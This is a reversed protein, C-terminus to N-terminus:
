KLFVMKMQDVFDGARLRYIYVGSGVKLGYDNTGDWKVNKFGAKQPENLVTKVKQGLINYITIEVDVSKPLAYKITTVPNFPNPYNQALNFETPLAIPKELIQQELVNLRQNTDMLKINDVTLESVEDGIWNFILTAFIGSGEVAIKDSIDFLIGAVIVRGETKDNYIFLSTGENSSLFDGENVLALEYDNPNYSVAFQYGALEKVQEAAITMTFNDGFDSMTSALKISSSINVGNNVIKVPAGKSAVQGYVETIVAIDLIDITGDSNLDIVADYESPYDYIETIIAIDLIDIENSGDLDAAMSVTNNIPRAKNAPSAASILRGDKTLVALDEKAECAGAEVNIAAVVNEGLDAAVKTLNSPTSVVPIIDGKVAAVWYYASGVDGNTSVVARITDDKSSPIPTAPIYAWNLASALSSASNRYVQYYDIPLNDDTDGSMGPHNASAPFELQVYGGADGPFDAADLATPATITAAGVTLDGTFGRIDVDAGKKTRASAALFSIDGPKDVSVTIDTSGTVLIPNEIGSVGSASATVNVVFTTDTVVNKFIDKPEIKLKFQTQEALVGVTSIEITDSSTPIWKLLKPTVGAWTRGLTDYVTSGSTDQVTLAIKANNLTKTSTVMINIEDGVMITDHIPSYSWATGNFSDVLTIVNPSWNIVPLKDTVNPAAKNTDVGLVEGAAPILEFKISKYTYDYIPNGNTDSPRLRITHYAGAAQPTDTKGATDSEAVIATLVAMAFHHLEEPLSIVIRISDNPDSSADSGLFRVILTDEGFIAPLAKYSVKVYRDNKMLDPTSGVGGFSTDDQFAGLSDFHLTIERMSTFQLTDQLDFSHIGVPYKPINDDAVKDPEIINGFKDKFQVFIERTAGSYFGSEIVDVTTSIDTVPPNETSITAIIEAYGRDPQKFISKTGLVKAGYSLSITATGKASDAIFNVLVSTTDGLNSGKDIRIKGTQGFTDLTTTRVGYVFGANGLADPNSSIAFKVKDTNLTDAWNLNKDQLTAQIQITPTLVAGGAAVEITDTPLANPLYWSVLKDPAGGVTTFLVASGGTGSNISDSSSKVFYAIVSDRALKPKTALSFKAVTFASNIPDNIVGGSIWYSSGDISRYKSKSGSALDESSVFFYISDINGPSAIVNKQNGFIDQLRAVFVVTDSAVVAGISNGSSLPATKNVYRDSNDSAGVTLDPSTPTITIINVAGAVVELSIKRTLGAIIYGYEKGTCGAPIDYITVNLTDIGIDAGSRYYFKVYGTADFGLGYNRATTLEVQSADLYSGEQFDRIFAVSDEPCPNGYKDSIRIEFQQSSTVPLLTVITPTITINGPEGPLLTVTHEDMSIVPKASSASRDPTAGKFGYAYGWSGKVRIGRAKTYGYATFTAGSRGLLPAVVTDKVADAGIDYLQGNGPRVAYPSNANATTLSVQTVTDMVMNAYRDKLHITFDGIDQGVTDKAGAATVTVSSFYFSDPEASQLYMPVRVIHRAANEGSGNTFTTDFVVLVTDVYFRAVTDNSAAWLSTDNRIGSLAFRFDITNGWLSDSDVGVAAQRRTIAISNAVNNVNTYISLSDIDPDRVFTGDTLTDAGSIVFGEPFIVYVTDVSDVGAANIDISLAFVHSASDGATGQFGPHDASGDIWGSIKTGITDVQAYASSSLGFILAMALVIVFFKTKM